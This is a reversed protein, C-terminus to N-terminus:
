DSIQPGYLSTLRTIEAAIAAFSNRAKVSMHRARLYGHVLQPENRYVVEVGARVLENAYEKGDDRLPDIDATVIVAPPLGSFDKSLLPFIGAEDAAQPEIGGTYAEYCDQLDSLQLLPAKAHETHSPLSAPKGLGPYVLIQALPMQNALRRLRISLAAALTGGASDGAVLGSRGDVTLGQWVGYVDDLQAPYIHEPALRYDVSIFEQGTAECLEACIDDHSELSGVVFGGGHFYLVFPSNKDFGRPQYRRVAVGAIVTDIVFVSDPRPERFVACMNDYIRRVEAPSAISSGTPFAAESKEIFRLVEPDTIKEPATM